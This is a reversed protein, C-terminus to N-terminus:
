KMNIFWCAAQKINRLFIKFNILSNYNITTLLSWKVGAGKGFRSNQWSSYKSIYWMLNPIQVPIVVLYYLLIGTFIDSSRIDMYIHSRELYAKHHSTNYRWSGHIKMAKKAKTIHFLKTMKLYIQYKSLHWLGNPIM